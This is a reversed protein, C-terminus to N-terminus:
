VEDKWISLLQVFWLGNVPFGTLRDFEVGLCSLSGELCDAEAWIGEVLVKSLISVLSVIDSVHNPWRVAKWGLVWTPILAGAASGDASHAELSFEGVAWIRM